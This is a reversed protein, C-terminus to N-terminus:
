PLWREMCRLIVANFVEPEDINSLHAAGPIVELEGRKLVNVMHRSSALDMLKDASGTIVQVPLDLEKLVHTRDKREAMGRAAAAVSASPQRAIMQEVQRAREPHDQRTSDALMDALMGRAVVAMGPDFAREAMEHRKARGAEDDANSRTNCLILGSLRQPHFEAFAMAVYGGMSLGAMVVQDIGREDLLTALDHAFAEMTLVDPVAAANHGFGRLDPTILDVTDGLAAHQADWLSSDHPFGHILLLKKVM